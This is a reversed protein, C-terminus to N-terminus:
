DNNRRKGLVDKIKAAIGKIGNEKIINRIARSYNILKVAPPCYLDVIDTFIRDPLTVKRSFRLYTKRLGSRIDKAVKKQHLEDLTRYYYNTGYSFYSVLTNKLLRDYGVSECFAIQQDLSWLFDLNKISFDSKTTGATNIMYFYLPVDIEAANGAEYLWKCVIANDEWFRGVTFPNNKIISSKILKACVIWYYPCNQRTRYDLLVEEGISQYHADPLTEYKQYFAAPPADQEYCGCMIVPAKGKAAETYLIELMQRHIMDDSDVYHVWEGASVKIANNRAGSQGMNCQHLVLIRKDKQAYEDCIAGSTDPTGDDALILEFDTFTQALISDICRRLYQEVKYVPVIVSIRPM